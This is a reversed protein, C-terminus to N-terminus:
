WENQVKLCSDPQKSSVAALLQTQSTLRLCPRRGVAPTALQHTNSLKLPWKDPIYENHKDLGHFSHCLQQTVQVHKCHSMYSIGSCLWHSWPWCVKYHKFVKYQKSYYPCWNWNQNAAAHNVISFCESHYIFNMTVSSIAQRSHIASTMTSSTLFVPYTSIVIFWTTGEGNRMLFFIWTSTTYCKWKFFFCLPLSLNM